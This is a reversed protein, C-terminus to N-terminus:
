TTNEENYVEFRRGPRRILNEDRHEDTDVTGRVRTRNPHRLSSTFSNPQPQIKHPALRHSQSWRPKPNGSKSAPERLIKTFVLALRNKESTEPHNGTELHFLILDNDPSLEGLTSKSFLLLINSSDNQNFRVFYRCPEKFIAGRINDRYSISNLTSLCMKKFLDVLVQRSFVPFNEFMWVWLYVTKKVM